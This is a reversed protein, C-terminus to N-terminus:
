IGLKGVLSHAIQKTKKMIIKQSYRCQDGSDLRTFYLGGSFGVVTELLGQFTSESNPIPNPRVLQAM